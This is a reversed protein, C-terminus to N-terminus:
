QGSLETKLETKPFFEHWQVATKMIDNPKQVFLAAQAAGRLAIRALKEDNLHHAAVLLVAYTWYCTECEVGIKQVEPMVHGVLEQATELEGNVAAWQAAMSRLWVMEQPGLVEQALALVRKRQALGDQAQYTDWWAHRIQDDIMGLYHRARDYEGIRAYESALMLYAERGLGWRGFSYAGGVVGFAVVKNKDVPMLAIAEELRDLAVSVEGIDGYAGAVEIMSLWPLIKSNKAKSYFSQLLERSLDDQGAQHAVLIAARVDGDGGMSHETLALQGAHRFLAEAYTDNEGQEYAVRALAIFYSIRLQGGSSQLKEAVLRAGSMRALMEIEVWPVMGDLVARGMADLAQEPMDLSRFLTMVDVARSSNVKPNDHKPLAEIANALAFVAQWERSKNTAEVPADYRVLTEKQMGKLVELGALFLVSAALNHGGLQGAFEQIVDSAPKESPESLKAALAFYGRSFKEKVDIPENQGSRVALDRAEDVYGLRMLSEIIVGTYHANVAKTGLKAAAQALCPQTPQQACARLKSAEHREDGAFAYFLTFIVAALVLAYSFVRM